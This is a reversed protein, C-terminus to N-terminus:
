GPIRAIAKERLAGLPRADNFNGDPSADYLRLFTVLDPIDGTSLDAFLYATKGEARFAVTSPRACGSMCDIEEVVANTAQVALARRLLAALGNRGAPCSRCVIARVASM